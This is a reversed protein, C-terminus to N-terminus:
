KRMILFQFREFPVRIESQKKHLIVFQGACAAAGLCLDRDGRHPHGGAHDGSHGHRGNKCADDHFEHPLPAAGSQVPEHRFATQRAPCRIGSRASRRQETGAAGGSETGGLWVAYHENTGYYDNVKDFDEDDYNCTFTLSDLEQIGNISTRMKDSLTTTDLTEPAGGLDPFDKIDVLKEWEATAGAAKHMLFAKYTSIAM